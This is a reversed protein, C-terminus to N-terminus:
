EKDGGKNFGRLENLNMLIVQATLKTNSFDSDMILTKLMMDLKNIIDNLRENEEELKEYDRALQLKSVYDVLYEVRESEKM